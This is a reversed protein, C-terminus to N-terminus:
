TSHSRRQFFSERVDISTTFHNKLSNQPAYYDISKQTKYIPRIKLPSDVRKIKSNEPLIQNINAFCKPPKIGPVACLRLKQDMKM